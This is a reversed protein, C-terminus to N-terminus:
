EGGGGARHVTCADLSHRQDTGFPGNTDAWQEIRDPRGPGRLEATLEGDACSAGLDASAGLLLAFSDSIVQPATSDSTSRLDVAVLCLARM